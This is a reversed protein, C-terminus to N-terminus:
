GGRSTTRLWVGSPGKVELWHAMKIETAQVRWVMRDESDECKRDGRQPVNEGVRWM